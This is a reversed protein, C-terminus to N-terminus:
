VTMTEGSALAEECAQAVALTRAADAPTCFVRAPDRESVADLFRAISRRFPHVTSHAEVTRGASTGRLTFEPDLTLALTADSAVIDLTYIGPQSRRTWAVVVTAIGGNELHLVLTAADDIDGRDGEAQGLLVSSAAAQM